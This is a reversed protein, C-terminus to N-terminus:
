KSTHPTSCVEKELYSRLSRIIKKRGRGPRDSLNGLEKYRKITNSITSKAIFLRRFIETNQLSKENLSIIAQRPTKNM